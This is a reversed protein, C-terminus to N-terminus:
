RPIGTKAATRELQPLIISRYRDRTEIAKRRKAPFADAKQELEKAHDEDAQSSGECCSGNTRIRAALDRLIKETDDLNSVAEDVTDLMSKLQLKRESIVASTSRYPEMFSALSKPIRVPVFKSIIFISPEDSKSSGATKAKAIWVTDKWPSRDEPPYFVRILWASGDSCRVIASDSLATHFLNDPRRAKGLAHIREILDSQFEGIDYLDCHRVGIGEYIMGTKERDTQDPSTEDGKTKGLFSVIMVFATLITKLPTTSM